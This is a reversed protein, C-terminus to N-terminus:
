LLPPRRLAVRAGARIRDGPRGRVLAPGQPLNHPPTEKNVSAPPGPSSAPSGIRDSTFSIITTGVACGSGSSWDCVGSSLVHSVVGSSVLRLTGGPAVPFRAVPSGPRCAPLGSPICVRLVRVRLPLCHPRPQADQGPDDGAGVQLPLNVPRRIFLLGARGQSIVLTPPQTTLAAGSPLVTATAPRRGTLSVAFPEIWGAAPMLFRASGSQRELRLTPPCHLKYGSRWPFWFPFPRRPRRSAEPQWRGSETRPAPIGGHTPIGPSACRAGRPIDRATSWRSLM